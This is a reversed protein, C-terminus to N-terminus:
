LHGANPRAPVVLSHVAKVRIQSQCWQMCRTVLKHAPEVRDRFDTDQIAMSVPELAIMFSSMTNFMAFVGHLDMLLEFGGKGSRSSPFFATTIAETDRRAGKVNSGYQKSVPKMLDVAQRLYDRLIMLGASVEADGKLREVLDGLIRDTAGSFDDWLGLYDELHRERNTFDDEAQAKTYAPNELSAIAPGQGSLVEPKGSTIKTLKVSAKFIPQKSIFDWSPVTLENAAVARGNMHDHGGQNHAGWHFPIFVQGKEIKGIKAPLEAAGNRTEVKVFDGDKIDLKKADDEHIQVYPDHDAHRLRKSRGTKTRTHFHLHNRGTALSFPYEECVDDLAARYQAGKLIARGNPNMKAYDAPSIPTGLELDHGFSEAEEPKTFFKGDNYLRPRGNPYEENCPWQIGSGGTLKAYSMGTYDCPRGKTSRAWHDFAEETTRFPLLDEGDKNKFEMRKAYDVFIDFDSKAEGPPDIAKHSIHCTRDVNTFCGTKEGWMAAPLVVDALQTTENEFIDQAIVFLGPDTLIDRVRSLKPLSVAPNTGNVWMMKISGAEMMQLMSMIHIPDSWHPIKAVDVNWYDALEQMHAPNNNNRFGPFEGDCGTERNNQATPQGNMQYIGGGPIGINGTLLQINNLACASAVAQNSQYVGQLATALVSKAQGIIDVAAELDKPPVGTIEQVREPTYGMVHGKLDDFGITNKDVFNKKVYGKVILMRQIGNLLALNTGIRPRLHVTAHEATLSLRPDVVVCKPPNPGAMRDLMRSWLVTQTAAVNHGFLFLCDTVDVDDYSGFTERMAAAAGATCLRTNGDMTLTGLGAKGVMALAHYEEAFLQGSTYFSIAHPTLHEIIEKSKQVILGMAEDWTARELKGNKRIQPYLLRDPHGNYEWSCFGKPGLRGKNIRDVARGRIGVIKNDKSVGIDANSCMVCASQVWHDVPEQIHEDVRVPWQGEGFFGTRPGWVDQIPDRTERPYGTSTGEHAQEQEKATMTAM